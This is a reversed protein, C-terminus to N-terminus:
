SFPRSCTRSANVARTAQAFEGVTKETLAVSLSVSRLSVISSFAFNPHVSFNVLVLLLRSLRVSHAFFFSSESRAFNSFFCAWTSRLVFCSLVSLSRTAFIM